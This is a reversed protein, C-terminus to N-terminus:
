NQLLLSSAGAGNRALFSADKNGEETSDVAAAYRISRVKIMRDASPCNDEDPCMRCVVDFNHKNQINNYTDGERTWILVAIKRLSFTFYRAYTFTAGASKM